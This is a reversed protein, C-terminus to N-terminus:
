VIVNKKVVFDDIPSRVEAEEMNEKIDGVDCGCVALQSDCSSSGVEDEGPSAFPIEEEEEKGRSVNMM